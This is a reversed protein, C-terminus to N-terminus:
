RTSCLTTPSRVRSPDMSTLVAVLYEVADGLFAKMAVALGGQQLHLRLKAREELTLSFIKV